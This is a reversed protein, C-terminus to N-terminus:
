KTKKIGIKVKGEELEFEKELDPKFSELEELSQALTEKLIFVQWSNFLKKLKLNSIQRGPRAEGRAPNKFSVAIRDKRTLGLEKRMDQIQRVLERAAGEEKLEKTIKKDLKVEAKLASDFVIKKVNVEEKILDLLQREAKLKESKIMLQGLPQRVKIGASAREALAQAVVQRALAMKEELNKNISKKDPEPYDCLHVSEAMRGKKLGLYIEESLFPIFPASMKACALLVQYLTQAAENKETANQPKQFRRRARRVYWNSLEEIFEEFVRAAGVVDYSELYKIIQLNLTNQRSVVWRDLLNKSRFARRPKFNKDLYTKLFIYINYYTGFFRNYKDNIDKFDFRKPEGAQNVTYFYWRAVDAGYKEIVDMPKVVNGKSKSMKQGKADLLLGLSIVNKYSPGRGLATSIALLTYFWGRTQDIAECIFDAPFTKGEDIKEKNEYPYHWQALPMSGSDFWADIVVKAHYMKGNCKPCDFVIADIFPRHLDKLRKGLEKASGVVKIEDCKECEWVPLPTGWYRERSLNWDKVEQLWEGFRGHKIYDPVWNIQENNAILEQKLATMKIFWATKAYYLLPTDCRWCFPYEHEYMEEKYLLRRKKLDVIIEKDADKVFKGKWQAVEEKFKGEEDVTMLIPLDHTKGAEMDEIGFAPALHVIGTGDAVSVFDAAIVKYGPKDLKMPFVPEYERGVLTGGLFEGEIEYSEDLVSLREKALFYRQEGVRAKVYTINEGVALASNGPLTWPTTTWVLFFSQPEAKVPLKFYISNEKITDYGQAVEHSSLATGCRPCYPVVKYDKYLLGAQWIQKLIWWVSEIYENEYTVYPNKMDIWFAIRETLKEWENKYRWVSEKCKQNFKAIGYKEIEKKSRLKLEKEVEIEVPLGHTDWGAKREVFFGRMTKYRPIIDKFARAAVHHLGPQGNATPPGEFFVFSKAGKRQSISKKFINRRAWFKLIKEEIQPLNM